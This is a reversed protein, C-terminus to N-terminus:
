LLMFGVNTIPTPLMQTIQWYIAEQHLRLGQSHSLFLPLPSIGYSCIFSALHWNSLWALSVFNIIVVFSIFSFFRVTAVSFNIMDRLIFSNRANEMPM